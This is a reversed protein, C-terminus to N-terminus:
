RGKTTTSKPEITIRLGLYDALREITDTNLGREGSMLRSRQTRLVGSGVETAGPVIASGRAVVGNPASVLEVVVPKNRSRNIRPLLLHVNVIKTQAGAPAACSAVCLLAAVWALWSSLARAGIRYRM